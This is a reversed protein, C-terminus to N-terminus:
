RAMGDAQARTRDDAKTKNHGAVETKQMTQVEAYAGEVVALADCDVHVVVAEVASWWVVDVTASRHMTLEHAVAGEFANSTCDAEEEAAATGDHVELKVM